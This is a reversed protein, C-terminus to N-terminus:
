ERRSQGGSLILILSCSFFSTLTGRIGMSSLSPELSRQCSRAYIGARSGKRKQAIAKAEKLYKVLMEYDEPIAVCGLMFREVTYCAGRSPM